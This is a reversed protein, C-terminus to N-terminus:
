CTPELPEGALRAALWTRIDDAAQDRVTGHDADPYREYVVAAGARCLDDVFRDTLKANVLLDAGGQVIMVPGAVRSPQISNEEIKDQWSVVEDPSKVVFEDPDVHSAEAFVDAACLDDGAREALDTGESGLLDATELDEFAASWGAAIMVALGRAVPLAFMGPVAVRLDALPAIAVTGVLNLEPAWEAALESTALAAHGGQSHGAVVLDDATEPVVQVAARAADLVSRAESTAVLYPHVGDGGLGEYDTAAVVFGADLYGQLEAIAGAGEASPACPDAIGTTGHAWSLVPYGGPPPDSSPRAVLGSVEVEEGAVSRSRYVVKWVTGDIDPSDLEELWRLGGPGDRGEVAFPSSESGCAGVVLMPVTLLVALLARAGRGTM